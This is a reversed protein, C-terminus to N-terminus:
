EEYPQKGSVAEANDNSTAGHCCGGSKCGKAYPCGCCESSISPKGKVKRVIATVAVALVIVVAAIITVIEVAGM